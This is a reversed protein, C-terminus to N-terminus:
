LNFRTCVLRPQLVFPKNKDIEVENILNDM